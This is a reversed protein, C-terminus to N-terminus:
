PQNPNPNTPVNPDNPASDLIDPTSDNDADCLYCHADATYPGKQLTDIDGKGFVTVTDSFAAQDTPSPPTTVDGASPTYFGVFCAKENPALDIDTKAVGTTCDVQTLMGTATTTGTVKSDTISTITIGQDDGASAPDPVNKVTVEVNVRLTLPGGNSGPVLDIGRCVKHVELAGQPALACRSAAESQADVAPIDSKGAATGAVANIKDVFSNATGTCEIGVTVTDGAAGKKALSAAVIVSNGSSIDTGVTSADGGTVSSIKCTEGAPIGAAGASTALYEKMTVDYVTGSGDNKIVVTFPSKITTGAADAVSAASCTKSATIRCNSFDGLVYDFITATLSVSSRTDALYRNFCAEINNQTLNIGGEFFEGTDLDGSNRYAPDHPNSAKTQTLWPVGASYLLAGANTKACLGNPVGDACDAGAALPTTQLYGVPDGTPKVWKYARIDAVRGGSTYEAVILLDGDSHVGTFSSAKNGAVCGVTPDKLFWFAVDKTGENSAVELGFYLLTDKTVPDTYITAYANLVDVKDNVNNAKVCQWGPTINLTDKSGTTFTSDDSTKGPVFDRFFSPTGFDAPLAPTSSSTKPTPVNTGSVDFLSAWDTTGSSVINGDLEFPIRPDTFAFAPTAGTLLLATCSALAAAANRFTLKKM